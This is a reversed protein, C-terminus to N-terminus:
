ARVLCKRLVHLALNRPCRAYKRIPATCGQTEYVSTGAMDEESPRVDPPVLRQIISFIGFVLPPGVKRPGLVLPRPERQDQFPFQLLDEHCEIKVIEWLSNCMKNHVIVTMLLIMIPPGTYAVSQSTETLWSM